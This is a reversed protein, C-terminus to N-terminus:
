QDILFTMEANRAKAVFPDLPAGTIADCGGEYRKPNTQRVDPVCMKDMGAEM